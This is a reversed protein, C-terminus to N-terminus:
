PLIVLPVGRPLDDMASLAIDAESRPFIRLSIKAFMGWFSTDAYVNPYYAHAGTLEEFITLTNDWGNIEDILGLDYAQQATYIRGDAINRVTDKNMNRGDAVVEIFLDKYEDIVSRIVAEQAPTIAVGPAGVSKNEGTDIVVTRIGLKDFLESTDFYTSVVGISGTISIRNAILRDAAMSIWYGGSACMEAMYVYVPRGTAEKYELIALRIEESHYVTGGPTNMYLLIGRDHPNDILSQIYGVVTFHDYGYDGFSRVGIISGEIPIVSFFESFPTVQYVPEAFLTGIAAILMFILIIALIGRIVSVTTLTTKMFNRFRRKPRQTNGPMSIGQPPLGPSIPPMGQQPTYPTGPKYGWQPAPQSIPQSIQQFPQGQPPQSTQQGPQYPQESQQQIPQQSQQPQQHDM